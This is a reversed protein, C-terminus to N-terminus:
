IENNNQLARVVATNTFSTDIYIKKDSQNKLYNYFSNYPFIEIGEKKFRESLLSPIKESDIFLAKKNKGVVAFSVFVPNFSIDSGRLNFTWALDDLASIVQFDADKSDLENTIKKFKDSRSFGAYKVDLEFVETKPITPRDEWIEDLLDDCLVIELDVNDLKRKLNKYTNYPLCKTNIGVRDGQKLNQILWDDFTIAGPVRLKQMKIGTGLLQEEAQIFYRTDTWLYAENKTIIVEGYSGTFGTIFERTKWRDPLYESMHPDTGSIYFADLKERDIVSRLRNIRDKIIEM